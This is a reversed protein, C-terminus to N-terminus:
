NFALGSIYWRDNQFVCKFTANKEFDKGFMKYSIKTMVSASNENVAVDKVDIHLSSFFEPGGDGNEGTLFAALNKLLTETDANTFIGVISGALNITKTISPALCDMMTNLDLGNCASGFREVLKKVEQKEGCSALSCVMVLVLILALSIRVTRNM